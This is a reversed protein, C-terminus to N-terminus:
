ADARGALCFRLTGLSAVNYSLVIPYDAKLLLQVTACLGSARTFTCLYRLSFVDEVDGGTSSEITMCSDHEGIVTTQSAFTGECRMRLSSGIIGITVHDGLQHMDRCLRQFYTSPLTLIRDFTIDPLKYNRADCDLLKLTYNTVANKDSNHIAIGLEDPAAHEVYLTICDRTSATKLLKCVNSMNVGTVLPAGCHFEDFNAAELKLFVLACKNNDMTLLCMGEDPEWAVNCDHLVHSLCEFLGKLAGGQVTKVYLAYAAPDFGGDPPPPSSM